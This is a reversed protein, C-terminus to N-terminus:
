VDDLHIRRQVGLRSVRVKAGIQSRGGSDKVSGKVIQMPHLVLRVSGLPDGGSLDLEQSAYGPASVSAAVLGDAEVEVSLTSADKTDLTDPAIGGSNSLITIRPPLSDGGAIRLDGQLTAGQVASCAVLVAGAVFITTLGRRRERTWFM